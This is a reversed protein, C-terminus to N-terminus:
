CVQPDSIKGDRFMEICNMYDDGEQTRQVCWGVTLVLGAILVIKWGNSILPEEPNPDYGLEEILERRERERLSREKAQVKLHLESVLDYFKTGPVGGKNAEENDLLTEFESLSLDNEKAMRKKLARTKSKTIEDREKFVDLSIDEQFSREEEIIKWRKRIYNEAIKEPNIM